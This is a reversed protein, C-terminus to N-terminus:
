LFTPQKGATRHAAYNYMRLRPGFDRSTPSFPGIGLAVATIVLIIDVYLHATKPGIEEEEM